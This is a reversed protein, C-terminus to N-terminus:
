GELKNETSFDTGSATPPQEMKYWFWQVPNKESPNNSPDIKDLLINRRMLVSNGTPEAHFGRTM